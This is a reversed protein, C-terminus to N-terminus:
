QADRDNRLIARGFIMGNRLDDLTQQAAEMPRIDLPMPKVKGARALGALERLEALSGVYSGIIRIGRLPVTPLPLELAGGFLCVLVMKGGRRLVSLGFEATPEAGVFDIVSAFGDTQKLLQKRIEPDRPDVALSAGAEVAADRKAPDIDAVVPAVGHVAKALGVAALGVGGAGIILLPDGAGVPAAKLLASYSTLGSCALTAAFDEPVDGYDVLYDPKDVLVYDGFGGDLVTGLSRPRACLHELGRQCLSCRGCGGWPYVIRADGVGVGQAEPGVAAVIGVIEHGLAKPLQIGRTLDMKRGHGLDFYGDLIHLDSHCVGCARVKVLVQTGTPEPVPEVAECLPSGFQTIKYSRMQM